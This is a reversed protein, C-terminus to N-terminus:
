DVMGIPMVMHCGIMMNGDCKLEINVLSPVVRQSVSILAAQVSEM